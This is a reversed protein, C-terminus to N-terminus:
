FWLWVVHLGVIIKGMGCFFAILIRSLRLVNTPVGGLNSTVSITHSLRPTLIQLVWSHRLVTFVFPELCCRLAFCYSVFCLFGRWTWVGFYVQNVGSATSNRHCPEFLWAHLAKQHYVTSCLRQWSIKVKKNWYWFFELLEHPRGHCVLWFCQM